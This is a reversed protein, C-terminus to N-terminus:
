AQKISVQLGDKEFTRALRSAKALYAARQPEWEFPTAADRAPDWKDSRFLARALMLEISDADRRKPM